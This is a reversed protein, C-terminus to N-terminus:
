QCYDISAKDGCKAAIAIINVGARQNMKLLCIGYLQFMLGMTDDKVLGREIDEISANLERRYASVAKRIYNTAEEYQEQNFFCEALMFLQNANLTHINSIRLLNNLAATYNQQEMQKMADDVMKPLDNETYTSKNIILKTGDITISGLAQIVAQGFLLPANLGESVSAKVNKIHQKGISVDRLIINVHNVISGDAIISQGTSIIDKKELYGNQLLYRACDMSISVDSCGTDFILKMSAGNVACPIRFLNGYPEMQIVDQSRLASPFGILLVMLPVGGRIFLLRLHLSFSRIIHHNM